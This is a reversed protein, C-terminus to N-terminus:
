MDLKMKYGLIRLTGTKGSPLSYFGAQITDGELLVSTYPSVVVVGPAVGTQYVTYCAIGSAKYLISVTRSAVDNHLACVIQPVYIYGEPVEDSSAWDTAGGTGAVTAQEVWQANYGFLLNSKQWSAGDYHYARAGLAEEIPIVIELRGDANVALVVYNDGADEYGLVGVHGKPPHEFTTEKAV